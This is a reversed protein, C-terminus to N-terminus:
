GWAADVALALVVYRGLKGIGVLLLFVWFRERMVGAVLTLPDGVVPLWSLLLVWRGRRAYWGQARALAAASVPFWRRTGFRAIGLGLGYNVVSGAINGVAASAVLALAPHGNLLLTALLAESQAPLLTAALFAALFLGGCAALTEQM